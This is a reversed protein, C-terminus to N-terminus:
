ITLDNGRQTDLMPRKVQGLQHWKFKIRRLAGNKLLPQTILDKMLLGWTETQANKTNFDYLFQIM